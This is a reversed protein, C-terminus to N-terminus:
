KDALPIRVGFTTDEWKLQRLIDWNCPLTLGSFPFSIWNQQKSLFHTITSVSCGLSTAWQEIDHRLVIHMSDWLLSSTSFTESSIFLEEGAGHRSVIEYDPPAVGVIIRETGMIIWCWQEHHLKVLAHKIAQKLQELEAAYRPHMERVKQRRAEDADHRQKRASMEALLAQKRIEEREETLRARTEVVWSNDTDM